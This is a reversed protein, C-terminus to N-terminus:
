TDTCLLFCSFHLPSFCLCYSVAEVAEVAVDEAGEVVVVEWVVEVVAVSAALRLM